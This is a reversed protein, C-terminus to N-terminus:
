GPPDPLATAIAALLDDPSFPKRLVCAAGFTRAVGLYDESRGRGGGSMAIIPLDPRDRRLIRITEIGEMEPMIIDTIVLDVAESELSRLAAAGDAAETVMHGFRKLAQRVSTRVAEDDDVVLIRAM